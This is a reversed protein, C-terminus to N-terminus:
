RGGKSLNETVYLPQLNALSNALRIQEYNPTGDSLTFNFKCLPKIHDIHWLIGHNEWTMDPKFNMELRQKLQETTYGLIDFTHKTIKSNLCRHIQQRCWCSLYFNTNNKKRTKTYENLNNKYIDSQRKTKNSEKIKDINKLYYEQNKTKIKEKNLERYKKNYEKCYKKRKDTKNYQQFYQKLEDKNLERYQKNYESYYEKNNRYHAKRKNKINDANNNYYNAQYEKRKIKKIIESCEICYKQTPTTPKYLKGCNECTKEKYNKAM